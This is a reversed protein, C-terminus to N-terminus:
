YKFLEGEQLQISSRDYRVEGKRLSELLKEAPAYVRYELSSNDLIIYIDISKEKIYNDIAALVVVEVPDELDKEEFKISTKPFNGSIYRNVNNVVEEIKGLEKAQKIDDEIAKVLSTKDSYLPKYKPVTRTGALRGKTGKLEATRGDVIFDGAGQKKLEVNSYLLPFLLEGKGITVSGKAGTLNVIKHVKQLSIGLDNKLNGKESLSKKKELDRVFQEVESSEGKQLINILEDHINRGDFTDKEIGAEKFREKLTTVSTSALLTRYVRVLLRGNEKSDNLLDKIQQILPVGENEQQEELKWEKM